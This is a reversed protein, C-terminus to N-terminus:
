TGSGPEEREIAVSGGAKEGSAIYQQTRKLARSTRQAAAQVAAETADQLAIRTNVYRDHLLERRRRGSEPDFLYMLAAGLGVAGLVFLASYGSSTTEAPDRSAM